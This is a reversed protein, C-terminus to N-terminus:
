SSNSSPSCTFDLQVHHHKFVPCSREVVRRRPGPAPSTTSDSFREISAMGIKLHPLIRRYRRAGSASKVNDFLIENPPYPHCSLLRWRNRLKQLIWAVSFASKHNRKRRQQKHTVLQSHREWSEHGKCKVSKEQAKEPLGLKNERRVRLMGHTRNSRLHGERREVHSDKPM